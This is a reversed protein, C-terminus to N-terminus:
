DNEDFDEERCILITIGYIDKQEIEYLNFRWGNVIWSDYIIKNSRPKVDIQKGIRNLYERIECYKERFKKDSLETNENRNPFYNKGVTNFYITQDYDIFVAKLEEDNKTFLYDINQTLIEDESKIFHITQVETNKFKKPYYDNHKIDNRYKQLDTGKTLKEFAVIEKKSIQNNLSLNSILKIINDSKVYQLTDYKFNLNTIDIKDNEVEFFGFSNYGNNFKLFKYNNKTNRFQNYWSFFDYKEEFPYVIEVNNKAIKTIATRKKLQTIQYLYNNSVFSTLFAYNLKNISSAPDYPNYEVSDKFICNIGKNYDYSTFMGNKKENIVDYYQTPKCENLNKPNTIEWVSSTNTVYFKENLFNVSEGNLSTFYQSKDKQNIFWTAQGWEGFSKYMVKYNNNEFVLDTGKTTETFKKTTFDFIYRSNNQQQIYLKNDEEFFDLYDNSIKEPLKEVFLIIGSQDFKILYKQINGIYYLESEEFISYYENKFKLSSIMQVRCAPRFIDETNIRIEHKSVKFLQANINLFIFFPLYNLFRSFIKM